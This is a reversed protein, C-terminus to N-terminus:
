KTHPGSAVSCTNAATEVKVVQFERVGSHRHKLDGPSGNAASGERVPDAPEPADIFAGSLKVQHGVQLALDESSSLKVKRGHTTQLEYAGANDKLLCGKMTREGGPMKRRGAGRQATSKPATQALAVSLFMVVLSLYKKM